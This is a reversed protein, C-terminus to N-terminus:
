QCKPILLLKQGLQANLLSQANKIRISGPIQEFDIGKIYQYTVKKIFNVISGPM